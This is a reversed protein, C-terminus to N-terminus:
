PCVFLWWYLCIKCIAVPKSVNWNRRLSRRLSTETHLRGVIKTAYFRLRLIDAWRRHGARCASRWTSPRRCGGAFMPLPFKCDFKTIIIVIIVFEKWYRVFTESKQAYAKATIFIDISHYLILTSTGNLENCGLKFLSLKLGRGEPAKGQIKFIGDVTTMFDYNGRGSLKIEDRYNM